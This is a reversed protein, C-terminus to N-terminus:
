ICMFNDYDWKCPSKCDFKSAIGSCIPNIKRGSHDPNMKDPIAHGTRKKQINPKNRNMPKSKHKVKVRNNFRGNSKIQLSKKPKQKLIQQPLRGRQPLRGSQPLRKPSTISVQQKVYDIVQGISWEPQNNSPNIYMMANSDFEPIDLNVNQISTSYTQPETNFYFENPVESFLFWYGEDRYLTDFNGIWNGNENSLGGGEKIIFEIMNHFQSPIASLVDLGDAGTYSLLILGSNGINDSYDINYMPTGFIPIDIDQNTIIWYGYSPDFNCNGGGGIWNGSQLMCGTGQSIVGTIIGDYISAPFIDNITFGELNSFPLGVLNSGGHLSLTTSSNSLTVYGGGIEHQGYPELDESPYVDYYRYEDAKWVKFYPVEGPQIYDETGTIFEDAANVPVTMWGDVLADAGLNVDLGDRNVFAGVYDYDTIPNGNILVENFQYFGFTMTATYCYNPNPGFDYRHKADTICNLYEHYASDPNRETTLGSFHQIQLNKWVPLDEAIPYLDYYQNEAIIYAKFTPYEGSHIGPFVTGQGPIGPYTDVHGNAPIDCGTTQWEPCDGWRRAGICIEEGEFWVFSGVWDDPGIPSGNVLPTTTFYFGQSTSKIFNYDPGFSEDDYECSGDDVEAGPDYNEAYQDTCGSPPYECSNWAEEEANPNYNLANPDMCGVVADWNPDDGPCECGSCDWGKRYEMEQCGCWPAGSPATYPEGLQNSNYQICLYWWEDCTMYGANLGDLWSYQSGEWWLDDTNHTQNCAM